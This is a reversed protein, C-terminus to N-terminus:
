QVACYSLIKNINEMVTSQQPGKDLGALLEQLFEAYDIHTTITLEIPTLGLKNKAGLNDTGGTIHWLLLELVNRSKHYFAKHLLTNGAEDTINLSFGMKLFQKVADSDDAAVTDFLEQAKASLYQRATANAYAKNQLLKMVAPTNNTAVAKLLAQQNEQAKKLNRMHAIDYHISAGHALLQEIVNANKSYAALALATEGNGRQADILAGYKLLIEIVQTNGKFVAYCLPTNGNGLIDKINVDANQQVILNEIRTINGSKVAALLQQDVTRLTMGQSVSAVSIILALPIFKFIKM